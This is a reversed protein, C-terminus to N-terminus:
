SRAGLLQAACAVLAADASGTSAKGRDVGLLRAAAATLPDIGAAPEPPAPAPAAAPASAAAPAATPTPAAAPAAAAVGVPPNALASKRDPHIVFLRTFGAVDFVQRVAANLGALRVSGNGEVAKALALLVRLGASSVYGIGALDLVLHRQGAQLLDQVALELDAATETDLRGVLALVCFPEAKEERIELAM